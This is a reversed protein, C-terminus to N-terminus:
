RPRSKGSASKARSSSSAHIATGARKFKTGAAEQAHSVAGTLDVGTFVKILWFYLIVVALPVLCSTVIMVAVSDILDNLKEAAANIAETAGSEVAEAAGSLVSGVSDLISQSSDDQEGSDQGDDTASQDGTDTSTDSDQESVQSAQELEQYEGNITDTLWTSVPVLTALALAVVILKVSLSLLVGRTPSSRRLCFRWALLACSVPIFIRFALLGFTTMLFKELYIVALIVALKGSLDALQEAIPTGADGPIASVAASAATTSAVLGLAVDKQGDLTEATKAYTGPTSFLTALPFACATAVLIAAVIAIARKGPGPVDPGAPVLYGAGPAGEVYEPSPGVSLWDSDGNGVSAKDLATREIPDDSFKRQEPM